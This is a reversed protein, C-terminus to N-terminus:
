QDNSSNDRNRKRARSEGGRRGIEQFFARGHRKATQDGGRKGAQSTSMSGDGQNDAM